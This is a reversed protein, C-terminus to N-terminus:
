GSVAHDAALGLIEVHRAAAVRGGLRGRLLWGPPAFKAKQSPDTRNM